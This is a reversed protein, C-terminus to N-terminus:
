KAALPWFRTPLGSQLLLVIIGDKIRRNMREMRANTSSRYPVSTSHCWGFEKAEKVLEPAKDSYFNKVGVNTGAFQLFAEEVGECSRSDTPYCGIFDTADDALTVAVRRDKGTKAKKLIIHDGRVRDGFVTPADPDM